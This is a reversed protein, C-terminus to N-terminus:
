SLFLWATVDIELLPCSSVYYMHMMNPNSILLRRYSNDDMFKSNLGLEEAPQVHGFISSLDNQKMRWATSNEGLVDEMRWTEIDESKKWPRLTDDIFSLNPNYGTLFIIM